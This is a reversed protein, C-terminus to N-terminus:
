VATGLLEYYYAENQRAMRELTFCERVRESGRRGMVQALDRDRTLRDIAGALALPDQPAVLFGTQSDIVSEALGGVSSAIVPLGAAMAELAAVGLGEYLSPLVFVDIEALFSPTDDVFGCFHVDEALGLKDALQKLEDLLPGDGAWRYEIKHGHSKLQAAAELLFRHGKRAELAAITGIIWRDGRRPATDRSREFREPDIGSYILRIKNSDVGAERLLDAITRSIAVVGDV